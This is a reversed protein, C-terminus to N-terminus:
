SADIYRQWMQQYAKEMERTFQKANWLPATQKSQRLKWAIQQRLAEDKGLRVGWEVYEEDTWAIGETIGANMMMTYSNRAAFQQGVRTVLPICMWLTELTTTAGNYPYTDLVIDAVGLNARHISESPVQQLFCLRDCSVGEEQAIQEFFQKVSQLDTKIGKILFYSNPVEQLIRMQLRVTNPHRKYGVQSSFYVIAENPIGLDERRLTPVGVEFGDVAIYTEPLRWITESYYEPATEPLVYPDAIFYDVGPLGSADWGLWTVQIPAPKLALAECSIDLTISDLDVLIDIDDQYIQEAIELGDRRLKRAVDSHEVYWAQLYDNSHSCYNAFYTYIQFQERNHYKFLWRALWGVSHKRFCYSLYGIRLPRTLSNQKGPFALSHHYREAQDSVYQQFNSQCLQLVQNQTIRNARADDRLYPFYFTSNFLRSIRTRGLAPQREVLVQLLTEHIQFVPVAELWRGGTVLLGRLIMFNGQIQDPLTKANAYLLQATAIGQDFLAANQYFTALHSLVEANQPALHLCLKAYDIALDLQSAAYGVETAALMLADVLKRPHCIHALSIKAFELVWPELPCTNLANQLVQELLSSNLREEIDSQLLPLIGLDTLNPDLRLQISLQIINLLNNIESSNIERLHQRIVWAIKYDTLSERRQAECQLIEALERTEQELQATEGALMGLMWTTQAEAEEGQLLFALGLYWYSSKVEPEVAILQQYLEIAKTYDGQNFYQFAQQKHVALSINEAQM